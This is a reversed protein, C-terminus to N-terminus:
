RFDTVIASPYDAPNLKFISSLPNSLKSYERISITYAVGSKAKMTIKKPIGQADTGSTSVEYLGNPNKLLAFPNDTIGGITADQSNGSAAPEVPMIIIEDVGKQWIGKVSGDSVVLLEDTEMRYNEGLTVATGETGLLVKGEADTATFSFSLTAGGVLFAVLTNIVTNVM